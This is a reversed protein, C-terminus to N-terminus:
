GPPEDVEPGALTGKFEPIDQSVFPELALVNGTRPAHREVVDSVFHAARIQGLVSLDDYVAAARLAAHRSFFQDFETIFANARIFAPQFLPLACAERDLLGSACRRICM